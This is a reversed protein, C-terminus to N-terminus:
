LLPQPPRRAPRGDPPPRMAARGGLAQVWGWSCRPPSWHRQWSPRWRTGRVHLHPRKQPLPPLPVGPLERLLEAHLREFRSFRIRVAYCLGHTGDVTYADDDQPRRYRRAAGRFSQRKRTLLVQEGSSVGATATRASGAGPWVLVVLTVGLQIVVSGSPVSPTIWAICSPLYAACAASSSSPPPSAPVPPSSRRSSRQCEAAAVRHARAPAAVLAHPSFWHVTRRQSTAIGFFFHKQTEVAYGAAACLTASGFVSRYWHSLDHRSSCTMAQEIACYGSPGHNHGCDKGMEHLLRHACWQARSVRLPTHRHLHTPHPHLTTRPEPPLPPSAVQSSLSSSGM